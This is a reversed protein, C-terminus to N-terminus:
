RDWTSESRREEATVRLSLGILVTLAGLISFLLAATIWGVALLENTTEYETALAVGLLAVVALGALIAAVGVAYCFVQTFRRM